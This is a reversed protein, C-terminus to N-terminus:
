RELALVVDAFPVEYRPPYSQGEITGDSRVRGFVRFGAVDAPGARRAGATLELCVGIVGSPAGLRRWKESEASSEPDAVVRGSVDAVTGDNPWALTGVLVEGVASALTLRMTEPSDVRRMATGSWTM